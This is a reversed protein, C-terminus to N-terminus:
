PSINIFSGPIATSSNFRGTTAVIGDNKDGIAVIQPQLSSSSSIFPNFKQSFIDLIVQNASPISLVFGTKNNLQQCGFSYPILLRIQQRVVYNHNKTTTITTSDGLSINSIFFQGPQYNQAQIPPNSFPPTPYSIVSGM